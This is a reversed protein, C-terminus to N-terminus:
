LGQRVPENAIVMVIPITDTADKVARIALTGVAVILDVPLHILEAVLEPLRSAQGEAYRRDILINQGEVYGLQRLGETFAEYNSPENESGLMGIRAGRPPAPAQWPLRGCGAMLVAGSMGAGVVLQRRSLRSGHRDMPPGEGPPM